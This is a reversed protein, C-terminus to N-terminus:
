GEIDRAFVSQREALPHEPACIFVLPDQFLHETRIAPHKDEGSTIALDVHRDRLSPVLGRRTNCMIRIDIRDNDERFARLFAPVRHFASDDEIAIRVVHDIGANM